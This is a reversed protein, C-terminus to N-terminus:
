APPEERPPQAAGHSRDPVRAGAARAAALLAEFADDPLPIEGPAREDERDFAHFDSGGTPVLGLRDALARLASMQEPLYARYYVELGWLGATALEEALAEHGDSFPPHAFVPLGGADRVLAIAEAPELREREVYAPRGRALYREFAEEISPVHGAEVLARAVHPRGVSAEGAFAEVRAWDVPAGERALADTIQHAREIRATRLRRMRAQLPADDADIFLGLM